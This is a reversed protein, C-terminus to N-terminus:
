ALSSKKAQDGWIRELLISIEQLYEMLNQQLSTWVTELDGFYLPMCCMLMGFPVGGKLQMCVVVPYSVTKRSNATSSNIVWMHKLGTLHQNVSPLLVRIKNFGDEINNNPGIQCYM